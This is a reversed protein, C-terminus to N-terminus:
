RSAKSRQRRVKKRKGNPFLPEFSRPRSSVIGFEPATFNKIVTDGLHGMPPGTKGPNELLGVKGPGEITALSGVKGPNEFSVALSGSNGRSGNKGLSSAKGPNEFLVAVRQSSGLGVKGPNEFVFELSGIKGPAKSTGLGVKGPNELRVALAGVKGPNEIALSGAKPPNEPEALATKPPPTLSLLQEDPLQRLWDFISLWQLSPVRIRASMPRRRANARLPRRTMEFYQQLFELWSTGQVEQTFRYDAYTDLVKEIPSRWPFYISLGHSFQYAPGFYDSNIVLRDYGVRQGNLASKVSECADRIAKVSQGQGASRLFLRECFDYLDTYNEGFYSQSELHALQIANKIAEDALGKILATSLQKIPKTLRNVVVENLNCMSLDASFGALFFDESNFFALNQLGQLIEHVLEFSAVGPEDRYGDIANFMKKLIQRYPWSGPFASGQTGMMYRASGALQYLLEVSNMSCSHFGVLHFEDGSSRVKQAFTKLIWGLDSLSIGSNDDPDPLFTDNGVIVGHGMLFVIYNSAPYYARAYELFFRLSVAAPMAPLGPIYCDEAIDRVFPDRGDGIITPLGETTTQNKRYRNVDFIRANRGNCNPDFYALVNTNKQFGADTLEKLQSIMSSSLLEDGAIYVLINWQSKQNETSQNKKANKPRRSRGGNRSAM